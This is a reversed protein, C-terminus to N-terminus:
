KEEEEKEGAKAKGGKRGLERYGEPGLEEKRAEGGKRGIEEYFERGHTRATVEGGKQGAEVLKEHTEPSIGEERIEKARAEGGKHGAEVLKEHTEPSIGEERIERAREEGGKKGLERYGEPGLEEKRAEGGKRGIEKYFEPGKERAVAEGGKHGAVERTYKLGLARVVEEDSNFAKDPMNKSAWDFDSEDIKGKLAEVIERKSAPYSVEDHLKMEFDSVDKLETEAIIVM